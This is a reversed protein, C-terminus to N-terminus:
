VNLNKSIIIQSLKSTMKTLMELSLANKKSLNNLEIKLIKDTFSENFIVNASM